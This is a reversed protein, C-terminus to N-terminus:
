VRQMGARVRRETIHYVHMAPLIGDRIRPYQYFISVNYGRLGSFGPHETAEQMLDNHDHDFTIIQAKKSKILSYALLEVIALIDAWIKPQEGEMLRRQYLDRGIEEIIRYLEREHLSSFRDRSAIGQQRVAQIANIALELSRHYERLSNRSKQHSDYKDHQGKRQYSRGEVRQHEISEGISDRAAGLREAYYSLENDVCPNMVFYRSEQAIRSLFGYWQRIYRAAITRDDPNMWRVNFLGLFIDQNDIVPLQFASSDFMVIGELSLGEKIGRELENIFSRM